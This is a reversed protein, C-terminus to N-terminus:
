EKLAKSNIVAYSVRSSFNLDICRPKTKYDRFEYITQDGGWILRADVELSLARSTTDSKEYRFFCFRKSISLFKEKKVSM